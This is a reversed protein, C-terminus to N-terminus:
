PRRIFNHCEFLNVEIGFFAGWRCCDPLDREHFFQLVDVDESKVIDYMGFRFEDEDELETLLIQLLVHILM